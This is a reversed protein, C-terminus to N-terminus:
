NYFSEERPVTAEHLDVAVDRTPESAKEQSPMSESLPDVDPHSPEFFLASHDRIHMDIRKKSPGDLSTLRVGIGPAMEPHMTNQERIWEVVGFSSVLEGGPFGIRVAVRTGIPRVDYTSIFIGGSDINGSFGTYFTSERSDELIAEFYASAGAKGIPVAPRGPFTWPQEFIRQM